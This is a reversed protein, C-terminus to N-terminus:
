PVPAARSNLISNGTQRRGTSGACATSPRAPLRCRSTPRAICGTTAASRITRISSSRRASRTCCTLCSGPAAMRRRQRHIQARALAAPRRLWPDRPGARRGAGEAQARGTGGGPFQGRPRPRCRHLGREGAHGRLPRDSRGGTGRCLRRAGPRAALLAGRPRARGDRRYAGRARGLRGARERGDLLVEPSQLRGPRAAGCPCRGRGDVPRGGDEGARVPGGSERSGKRTEGWQVTASQSVSAESWREAQAGAPTAGLLAMLAIAATKKM